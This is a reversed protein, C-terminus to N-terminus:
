FFILGLVWYTIAALVATMPLTIIWTTVIRGAVDWKVKNFGKAAGVGMIASSIVHTTSVPLKYLTAVLIVMSSTFDAAFGNVPQIKIIGRGVTRIIRWGGSATGLAMALAASVKVWLPIDTTEQFGGAILAFTIVGMAKQADNTGHMFAQFAASFIQFIRFNRTMKAPAFNRFIWLLSLMILFGVVLAIIPSFILSKLIKAFGGTNLASFGASAIVAGVLSGILAHSSSSPIGYWWTILNWLIAATMAAVVIWMGNHLQFPDAIGNGITKAVGTFTLAGILNMSAALVIAMRPTLAKTSISTAIANATDHFGNIYDFVLALIVVTIILILGGDLM